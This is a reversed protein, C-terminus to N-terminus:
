IQYEFAKILAGESYTILKANATLNTSIYSAEFIPRSKKSVQIICSTCEANGIESHIYCLSPKYRYLSNLLHKGTKPVRDRHLSNSLRENRLTGRKWQSRCLSARNQHFSQPM